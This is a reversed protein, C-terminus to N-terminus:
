PFSPSSGPSPFQTTVHHWFAIFFIIFIVTLLPGIIGLIIGAIAM